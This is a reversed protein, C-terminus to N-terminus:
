IVGQPNKKVGTNTALAKLDGPSKETNQGIEVISTEARGGIELEELGRVLGKAGLADIVIPIM